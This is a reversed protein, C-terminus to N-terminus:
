KGTREERKETTRGPPPITFASDSQACNLKKLLRTLNIEVARESISLKRAVKSNPIGATVLGLIEIEQSHLRSDPPELRNNPEGEFMANIGRVLDAGKVDKLFYGRAGAQVAKLIDETEEYTSLVVVRAWPSRRVLSAVAAAGGLGPLGLDILIVDPHSEELLRIAELCNDAEAVTMMNHQANIIAALGLRVVLHDEVIMIRIRRDLDM